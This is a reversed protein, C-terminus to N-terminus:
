TKMTIKTVSIDNRELLCRKSDLNNLECIKADKENM